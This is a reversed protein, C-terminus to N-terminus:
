YKIWVTLLCIDVAFRYTIDCGASNLQAKKKWVENWPEVLFVVLTLSM